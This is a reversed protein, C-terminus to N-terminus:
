RTTRVARAGLREFDVPERREDDAVAVFAHVADRGDVSLADLDAAAACRDIGVVDIPDDAVLLDGVEAAEDVSEERGRAPGTDDTRVHRYM